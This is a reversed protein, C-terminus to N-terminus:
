KKTNLFDCLIVNTIAELGHKCLQCPLDTHKMTFMEQTFHRGNYM